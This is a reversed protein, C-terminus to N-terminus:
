YRWHYLDGRAPGWAARAGNVFLQYRNDATVHVVFVAPKSPLDIARRFHFVGYDFVSGEAPAIWRASWRSGLLEPNAAWAAFAVFFLILRPLM